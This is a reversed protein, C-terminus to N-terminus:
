LESKSSLQKQESLAPDLGISEIFIKLDARIQSLDYCTSSVFVAPSYGKPMKKVKPKKAVLTQIRLCLYALM